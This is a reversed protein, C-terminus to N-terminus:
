DRCSSRFSISSLEVLGTAVSRRGDRERVQAPPREPQVFKIFQKYILSDTEQRPKPGRTMPHSTRTMQLAAQLGRDLPSDYASDIGLKGRSRLPQSGQKFMRQLAAHHHKPARGLTALIVPSV